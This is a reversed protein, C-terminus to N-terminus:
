KRSLQNRQVSLLQLSAGRYDPRQCWGAEQGGNLLLGHRNEPPFRFQAEQIPGGQNDARSQNDITPRPIPCTIIM